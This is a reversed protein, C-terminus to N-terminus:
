LLRLKDPVRGQELLVHILKQFYSNSSLPFCVEDRKDKPAVCTNKKQDCVQDKACDGTTKCQQPAPVDRKSNPSDCTQKKPDCVFGKVCDDTTNCDQGM